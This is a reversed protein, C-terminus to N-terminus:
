KKLRNVDVILPSEPCPSLIQESAAQFVLFFGSNSESLLSNQLPCSLSRAATFIWTLNYHQAIQLVSKLPVDVIYSTTTLRRRCATFTMMHPRLLFCLLVKSMKPHLLFVWVERTPTHLLLTCKWPVMSKVGLECWFRRCGNVDTHLNGDPTARARKLLAGSAHFQASQFFVRSNQKDSKMRPSWTLRLLYLREPLFDIIPFCPDPHNEDSYVIHQFKNKSYIHFSFKLM